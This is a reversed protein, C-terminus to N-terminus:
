GGTVGDAVDARNQSSFVLLKSIPAAWVKGGTFLVSSVYLAAAPVTRDM